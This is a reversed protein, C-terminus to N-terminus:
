SHVLVLDRATEACGRFWAVLENMASLEYEEFGSTLRAVTEDALIAAVAVVRSRPVVGFRPYNGPDLEPIALPPPGGLVREIAFLDGPVGSEGLARDVKAFWASARRLSCWDDSPLPEGLEKCLFELAFGYLHNGGTTYDGGAVVRRVVEPMLLLEETEGDELREEAVEDLEEIEEAFREVVRDILAQDKLDRAAQLRELDVAIAQVSTGM